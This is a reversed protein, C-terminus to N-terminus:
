GALGGGEGALGGAAVLGGAGVLSSMIRGAVAETVTVTPTNTYTGLATGNNTVRLQITDADVVDAAQIELMFEFETEDSGAFDPATTSAPGGDGEVMGANTTIFTGAGIQQTTNDGDAYNSSLVGRIVSSAGTVNNWGAGNLNYQLIEQFDAEAVGATEQILFRVRFQADADIDQTWNTNALAIWSATTETGDDNRGRFSDQDFQSGSFFIAGPFRFQSSM